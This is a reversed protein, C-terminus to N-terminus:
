TGFHDNVSLLVLFIRLVDQRCTASNIPVSMERHLFTQWSEQNRHMHSTEWNHHRHAQTLVQHKVDDDITQARPKDRWTSKWESIISTVCLFM